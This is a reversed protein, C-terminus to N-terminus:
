MIGTAFPPEFVVAYDVGSARSKCGGGRFERLTTFKADYETEM